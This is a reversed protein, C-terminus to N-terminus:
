AREVLLTVSEHRGLVIDGEAREIKRQWPDSRWVVPQSGDPTVIRITDAVVGPNFLRLVLDPGNDARQLLTVVTGRAEIEIPPRTVPTAPNAPVIILPQAVGIAFREVDAEDFAMHPRLAYTFEHDGQQGARYNTEWYNNMVYSLLTASAPLRKLWGTVIADTRVEGFQVMPVDVSVFTVGLRENHVDVWRQVSMYNKSSGPLQDLEPRFSGWPIDVRNEADPIKFPFEFLVAEPDYVLKKYIRNIVDVRDIGAYLRIERSIGGNTGPADATSELSWVLPGNEKLKLRVGENTAVNHPDRGAVYLYRNLGDGAAFEWKAREWVLSSITGTLRDVEVRIEGNSIANVVEPDDGSEAASSALRYRRAGLGPVDEALFALEGTSLLQAPVDNGAEDQVRNNGGALQAPLEVLDTRQWNLTNYVDITAGPSSGGVSETHLQHRLARSLTVASDAFQKKRQWQQITFDSEPESVSNWSGWTHEYYLLVQKWAGYVAEAPLTMGVIAALTETQTLSEAARRVAATERASSAVGDEWHGTLDGAHAPLEDGYRVEFERFLAATNSIILRPSVYHENWAAVAQALTPDPPGNDSGINYRMHAIDYPYGNEALQDLYKFVNEEDLWQTLKSYGLGTHFWSYGAGSVWTLVRGCGSPSEWYFPRDGWEETFYGIRHGSNPGLSLYKIGHQALVPVLGWTFGPIDSLMASEIEVGSLASLRRSTELGRMLGESSVVGTLLNAYIGDLSIWGRRIGELLGDREARGHQELYSEVAWLGEPTWIFRSGEPLDESAAGLELAQELHRWQLREVEDQRDTYGIDLHTHHILYLDLQRVPSVTFEAATRFDDVEIALGITTKTEVAPVLFEFHHHGLELPQDIHGHTGQLRVRGSEGLYVLDVRVSQTHEPTGRVLAHTNRLLVSQTLPEKFILFWTREGASEGMIRLNVTRDARWMDRPVSLFVFGMLDDYKDVVTVRFEAHVGGDGSWHMVEVDDRNPNTFRFSFDGNIYFEFERQDESVDIGAMFVFVATDGAFDAPVPATEWEIYRGREESRILLSRDVYPIPSHYGLEEGRITTRYGPVHSTPLEIRHSDASDTVTQATSLEALIVILLSSLLAYRSM